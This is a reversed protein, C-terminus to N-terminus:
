RVPKVIGIAGESTRGTLPDLRARINYMIKLYDLRKEHDTDLAEEEAALHVVRGCIVNEPCGPFLEREWEFKYELSVPAEKIRPSNVMRAEEITLGADTIEDTEEGNVEITKFYKDRDRGSPVNICWEKDRKINEYTHSNRSLSFISYFGSAKGTFYGWSCLCANPKGNEKKTAIVFIPYPLNFVYEIWSFIEYQGPWSETINEPLKVGLEKKM